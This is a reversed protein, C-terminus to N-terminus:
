VPPAIREKFRTGATVTVDGFPIDQELQIFDLTKLQLLEFFCAVATRRSTTKQTMARYSSTEGTTVDMHQRLYGLVKVTHPHWKHSVATTSVMPPTVEEETANQDYNIEDENVSLLDFDVGSTTTPDLELDVAHGLSTQSTSLGAEDEMPMPHDEMDPMDMLEEDEEFPEDQPPGEMEFDLMSPDQDEYKESPTPFHDLGDELLSLEGEGGQHSPAERTQEVDSMRRKKVRRRLATARKIKKQYLEVLVQSRHQHNYPLSFSADITDTQPFLFFGVEVMAGAGGTYLRQRHDRTPRTIDSIDALGAKIVATTLETVNDTLVTCKRKKAKKLTIHISSAVSSHDDGSHHSGTVSGTTLDSLHRTNRPSHSTLSGMTLDPDEEMGMSM